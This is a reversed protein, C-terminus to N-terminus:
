TELTKTELEKVKRRHINYMLVGLLANTFGSILTTITAIDPKQTLFVTIYMITLLIGYIIKVVYDMITLLDM